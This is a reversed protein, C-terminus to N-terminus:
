GRPAMKSMRWSWFYLGAILIMPGSILLIWPTHERAMVAYAAALVLFGAAGIWPRRWAFILLLFVLWTPTLHIVFALLMEGLPRGEVFVDLAFLSLFCAFLIALIRPTWVLWKASTSTM